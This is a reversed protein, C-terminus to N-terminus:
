LKKVQKVLSISLKKLHKWSILITDLGFTISKMIILNKTAKSMQFQFPSTACGCRETHSGHIAM